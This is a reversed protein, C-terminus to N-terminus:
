LESSIDCKSALYNIKNHYSIAVTTSLPEACLETTNESGMVYNRAISNEAPDVM